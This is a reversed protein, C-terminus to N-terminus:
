HRLCGTGVEDLKPRMQCLGEKGHRSAPVTASLQWEFRVNRM